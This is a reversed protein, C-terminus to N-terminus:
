RAAKGVPPVGAEGPQGPNVITDGLILVSQVVRGYGSSETTLRYIHPGTETLSIVKVMEDKSRGPLQKSLTKM